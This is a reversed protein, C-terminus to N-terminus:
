VCVYVLCCVFVCVVGLVFLVSWVGGCLLDCTFWVFVDILLVLVVLVCLVFYMTVCYNVCVGDLAMLCCCVCFVVFLVSLMVCCCALSVM